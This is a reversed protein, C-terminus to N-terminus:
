SGGSGCIALVSSVLFVALKISVTLFRTFDGSSRVAKQSNTFCFNLPYFLEIYGLQPCHLEFPVSKQRVEVMRAFDDDRCRLPSRIRNSSLALKRIRKLVKSRNKAKNTYM